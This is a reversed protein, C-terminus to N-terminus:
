FYSLSKDFDSSKYSAKESLEGEGQRSVGSGRMQSGATWWTVCRARQGRSSFAQLITHMLNFHFDPVRYINVKMVSLCLSLKRLSPGTIVQDMIWFGMPLRKMSLVYKSQLHYCIKICNMIRISNGVKILTTSPGSAWAWLSPSGRSWLSCGLM